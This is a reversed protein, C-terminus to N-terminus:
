GFLAGERVVQPPCQPTGGPGRELRIQQGLQQSQLPFVAKAQQGRGPNSVLLSSGRGLDSEEKPLVWRTVQQCPSIFDWIPFSQMAPGAGPSGRTQGFNDKPNCQLKIDRELSGQKRHRRGLCPGWPVPCALM